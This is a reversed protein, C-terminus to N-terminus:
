KHAKHPKFEITIFFLLDSYTLTLRHFLYELNHSRLGLSVALNRVIIIGLM